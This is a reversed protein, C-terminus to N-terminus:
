DNSLIHTIQTCLETNAKNHTALPQIGHPYHKSHLIYNYLHTNVFITERLTELVHM